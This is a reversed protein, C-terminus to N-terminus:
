DGINRLIDEPKRVNESLVGYKEVSLNLYVKAKKLIDKHHYGTSILKRIYNRETETFSKTNQVDDSQHDDKEIINEQLDPTESKKIIINSNTARIQRAKAASAM